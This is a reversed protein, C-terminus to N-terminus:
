LCLSTARSSSRLTKSAAAALYKFPHHVREAARRTAVAEEFSNFMGLFYYQKNSRINAFWKGEAKNFRVGTVGSTNNKATRRNQNNLTMTALRLNGWRNDDRIRNRHDIQEPPFAGTMYLWALRHAKYLRKKGGITLSIVIYGDSDHTSCEAGDCRRHWRSNNKRYFRGTDPDYRLRQKLEEQSIM